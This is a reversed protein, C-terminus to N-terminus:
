PVPLPHTVEWCTSPFCMGPIADSADPEGAAAPTGSNRREAAQPLRAGQLEPPAAAAPHHQQLLAPAALAGWAAPIATTSM